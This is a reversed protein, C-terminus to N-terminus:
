HKTENETESIKPNFNRKTVLNSANPIKYEAATLATTTDLNTIHPGKNKLRM